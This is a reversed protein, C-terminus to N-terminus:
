PDDRPLVMLEAAVQDQLKIDRAEARLVPEEAGEHGTVVRLRQRISRLVPLKSGKIGPPTFPDFPKGAHEANCIAEVAGVGTANLSQGAADALSGERNMERRIGTAPRLDFLRPLFLNKKFM